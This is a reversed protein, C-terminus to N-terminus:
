GRKDDLVNIIADIAIYIMKLVFLMQKFVWVWQCKMLYLLDPVTCLNDQRKLEQYKELNSAMHDISANCCRLYYSVM